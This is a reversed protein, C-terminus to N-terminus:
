FAYPYLTGLEYGSWHIIEEFASALSQGNPIQANGPDAGANRSRIYIMGSLPRMHQLLQPRGRGSGEIQTLILRGASVSTLFLFSLLASIM